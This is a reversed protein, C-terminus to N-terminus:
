KQKFKPITYQFKAESYTKVKEAQQVILKCLDLYYKSHTFCRWQGEDKVWKPRGFNGETMLNYKYKLKSRGKHDAIRISGVRVDKFRIYISGTTAKHWIYCEVGQEILASLVDNSISETKKKSDKM